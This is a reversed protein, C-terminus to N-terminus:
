DQKNIREVTFNEEGVIRMMLGTFIQAIHEGVDSSADIVAKGDAALYSAHLRVRPKGFTCETTIIALTIQEEIAEKTVGEKFKFRYIEVM